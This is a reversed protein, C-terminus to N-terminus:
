KGNYFIQLYAFSDNDDFGKHLQKVHIQIVFFLILIPIKIDIYIPACPIFSINQKIM